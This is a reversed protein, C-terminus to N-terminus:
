RGRGSFRVGDRVVFGSPDIYVGGEECLGGNVTITMPGSITVGHAVLYAVIATAVEDPGLEIKVGPGYETTGDGYRIKM